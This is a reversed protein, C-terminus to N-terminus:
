GKRRQRDRGLLLSGVKRFDGDMVKYDAKVQGHEIPSIATHIYLTDMGVNRAGIMDTSEDNGIMICQSPELHYEELLRCFFMPSPKKWGQESSLFIGDFYGTLGLMEIEPRTFDSQANSLLFVRKRRRRLEGLTEKVGEYVRLYKRSLARFTIATMKAQMDDCPVGKEQYLLAFVRTLDPEIADQLDRYFTERVYADKAESCDGPHFPGSAKGQISDVIVAGINEKEARELRRFTHQLKNPSYDAGLACYIESMKKWLVPSEEDTRIDALTGYFDFIYNRYM